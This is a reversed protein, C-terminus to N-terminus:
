YSKIELSNNEILDIKEGNYDIGGLVYIQHKFKIANNNLDREKRLSRFSILSNTEV